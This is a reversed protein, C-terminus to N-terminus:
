RRRRRALRLLGGIRYTRGVDVLAVDFGEGRVREVFSGEDPAVFSVADGRERAARALALAVLQGGAVDGGIVVHVIRM